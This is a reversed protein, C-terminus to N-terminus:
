YMQYSACMQAPMHVLMGDAGVTCTTTLRSPPAIDTDWTIRHPSRRQPCAVFERWEARCHLVVPRRQTLCVACAPAQTHRVTTAM